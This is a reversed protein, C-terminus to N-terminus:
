LMKTEYWLFSVSLLFPIFFWWLSLKKELLISKEVVQNHIPHHQVFKITALRQQAERLQQWDEQHYVYFSDNLDAIQLTNWGSQGAWTNLQWQTALERNQLPSMMLGATKFAPVLGGQPLSITIAVTEGVQPSGPSITWREKAEAPRATKNVMASWFQAYDGAAGNLMWQYTASLVSVTQRGMGYLQSNVLIKGGVEQFLPQDDNGSKLFLLQEFPLASLIAGHNTFGANLPKNKLSESEYLSNGAAIGLGSKVSSVRIFLGLGNDLAQKINSREAGSLQELEEEDLILLDMKKLLAPTIAHLEKIDTNLFDTSYKDKSIRSRFILPYKKEFLWNKLFKYEFDPNSALMLVKVPNSAKIEIPVPGTFLTDKGKLGIMRFVAKGSQQPIAKLTFTQLGKETLTISDLKTGLGELLLKSAEGGTHQYTGQLVLESSPTLQGNWSLATLGDVAPGPHFSLQKGKLLQLQETSLGKGFIHIVQLDPNSKLFYELDPVFQVGDKRHDMFVQHDLSYTFRSLSSLESVNSSLLNIEQTGAKKKTTFGPPYLLFYFCLIAMMSALLRWILHAKHKRRTEAILLFVGLAVCFGIALYKFDM